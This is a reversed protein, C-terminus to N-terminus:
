DFVSNEYVAHFFISIKLNFFLVKSKKSTLTIQPSIGISPDEFNLNM